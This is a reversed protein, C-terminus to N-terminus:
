YIISFMQPKIAILIIARPKKVESYFVDKPYASTFGQSRWSKATAESRTCIFINSKNIFGSNVFGAVLAKAM